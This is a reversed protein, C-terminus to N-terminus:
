ADWDPRKGCRCKKMIRKGVPVLNVGVRGHRDLMITDQIYEGFVKYSPPRSM